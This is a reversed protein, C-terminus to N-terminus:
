HSTKRNQCYLPTKLPSFISRISEARKSFSQSRLDRVFFRYRFTNANFLDFSLKKKLIMSRLGVTLRWQEFQTEFCKKEIRLTLILAIVNHPFTLINCYFNLVNTNRRYISNTIHKRTRFM